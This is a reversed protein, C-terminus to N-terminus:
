PLVEELHPSIPSWTTVMRAKWVFCFPVIITRYRAACPGPCEQSCIQSLSLRAPPKTSSLVGDSRLRADLQLNVPVELWKRQWEVAAVSSKLVYFRSTPPPCHRVEEGSSQPVSSRRLHNITDDQRSSHRTWKRHSFRQHIIKSGLILSVPGSGEFVSGRRRHGPSVSRKARQM